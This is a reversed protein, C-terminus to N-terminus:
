QGTCLLTVTGMPADDPKLNTFGWVCAAGARSANPANSILRPNADLGDLGCSVAAVKLPAPCSAKVEWNTAAACAGASLNEVACYDMIQATTQTVTAAAAATGGDALAPAAFFGAVLGAAIVPWSFVSKRM